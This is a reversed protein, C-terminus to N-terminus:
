QFVVHGFQNLVVGRIERVVNSAQEGLDVLMELIRRTEPRTGDTARCRSVAVATSTM